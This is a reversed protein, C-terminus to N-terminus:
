RQTRQAPAALAMVSVLRGPPRRDRRFRGLSMDMPEMRITAGLERAKDVIADCDAVAFCVGWHSPM